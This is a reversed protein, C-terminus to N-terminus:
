LEDFYFKSFKKLLPKEIKKKMLFFIIGVLVYFGGVILFGEATNGLMTAFWFAASLSLFLLAIFGVGGILLVKTAMTIGKMMSRFSQLRYFDLSNKVYSRVGDQVHDIQEKIEEFAM